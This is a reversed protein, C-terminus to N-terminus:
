SGRLPRACPRSGPRWGSAARRGIPRCAGYRSRHGPVGCSAGEGAAEEVVGARDERREVVGVDFGDDVHEARGAVAASAQEEAARAAAGAVRRVRRAVEALEGADLAYQTVSLTESSVARMLSSPQSEDYASHSRAERRARRAVAQEHERDTAAAEFACTLTLRTRAMCRACRRRRMSRRADRAAVAAVSRSSRRRRRAHHRRDVGAEDGRLGFPELREDPVEITECGASAGAVAFHSDIM